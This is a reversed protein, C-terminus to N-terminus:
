KKKDLLKRIRLFRDLEVSVTELNGLVTNSLLVKNDYKPDLLFVTPFGTIGIERVLKEYNKDEVNVKAFVVDEGYKESLAQFVPMFRICYGCWDAYFLAMVPKKGKMATNYDVGVAYESPKKPEGTLDMPMMEEPQMKEKTFKNYQHYEYGGIGAIVMVLLIVSVIVVNKKNLGKFKEKLDLGM